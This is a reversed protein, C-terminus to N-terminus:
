KQALHDLSRILQMMMQFRKMATTRGTKSVLQKVFFTKWHKLMKLRDASAQSSALPSTMCHTYLRLHTTKLKSAVCVCSRKSAQEDIDDAGEMDSESEDHGDQVRGDCDGYEDVHTAQAAILFWSTVTSYDHIRTPSASVTFHEIHECPTEKPTSM